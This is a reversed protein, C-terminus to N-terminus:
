GLATGRAKQLLHRSLTRTWANPRVWSVHVQSTYIQPDWICHLDELPAACADRNWGMSM